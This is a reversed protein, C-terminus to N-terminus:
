KLLLHWDNKIQLAWKSPSPRKWHTNPNTHQRQSCNLSRQWKLRKYVINVNHISWFSDNNLSTLRFPQYYMLTNVCPFPGNEEKTGKLSVVLNAKLECTVGQVGLDLHTEWEITHLFHSTAHFLTAAATETTKLNNCRPPDRLKVVAEPSSCIQHFICLYSGWSHLRIYSGRSKTIILRKFVFVIV